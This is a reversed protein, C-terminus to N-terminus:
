DGRLAAAPDVRAAHRAPVWAAIAAAVLLVVAAVLGTVPDPAAVSSIRSRLLGGALVSLVGGAAIGGGTIALARAAVSWAISRGRAGLALRIAMERAHMAVSFTLVGYLGVVSLLLSLSAFAGVVITGTRPVFTSASIHEALTRPQLAPLDVNVALLARRVPEVLARPDLAARVHITMGPLYWQATPVYILPHLPEDLRDYKGDHLVGVITAWGRGADVRRGLPNDGHFFRTVFAENVVAVPLSGARDDDVFDRGRVIAIKMTKAYDSGVHAREASMNESPTPAYGEIKMEIVRRGGFGLPVMSAVTVAQVGPLARLRTLLTRLAAIGSTDAFKAAGFDTDVLLVRSPDSFGVDIAAATGLGRVFMGAIVLSLVCLSLQGGVIASRLRTRGATTGRGAAGLAGRAAVRVSAFAPAIGCVVAVVVVAAFTAALVRWGIPIPLSIPFAGRPVFSYMAGRALYTTGVGAAGGAVALLASELLAARVVRWSSAGVARRLAVETRRADARVLLLSAVNASALAVLLGSVALLAVLLPSLTAGLFQVRLYMVTAGTAPRDGYGASIRKAVVDADERAADISVGPALRAFLLWTRLKRDDLTNVGSLRPQLTLPVYFHPVVGTYVGSFRPPAIGVVTVAQGNLLLTRGIVAPDGRYRDTWYQHGIVAVPASTEVDADNILRGRSPKVGLVDFYAGSVTTALLPVSGTEGQERASVRIIRWAALGTFSRTGGRLEKFTQYSWAGMGGNPPGVELGVLRGQDAAAPFPRLVLADMWSFVASAAGVGIGISLVAALAVSPSRWLGRAAHRLDQWLTEM